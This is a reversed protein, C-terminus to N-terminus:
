IKSATRLAVLGFADDFSTTKGALPILDQRPPWYCCMWLKQGESKTM